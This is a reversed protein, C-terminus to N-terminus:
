CLVVYGAGGAERWNSKIAYSGETKLKKERPAAAGTSRIFSELIANKPV